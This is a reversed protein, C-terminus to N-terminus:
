TQRKRSPDANNCPLQSKSPQAFMDTPGFVIVHWAPALIAALSHCRRQSLAPPPETPACRGVTRHRSGGEFRPLGAGGARPRSLCEREECVHKYKCVRQKAAQLTRGGAPDVARQRPHRNYPHMKIQYVLQIFSSSCFSIFAVYSPAPPVAPGPRPRHSLPVVPLGQQLVAVTGWQRVPRSQCRLASRADM